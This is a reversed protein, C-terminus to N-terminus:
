RQGMCVVHGSKDTMCQQSTAIPTPAAEPISVTPVAAVPPSLVPQAVSPAPADPEPTWEYKVMHSCADRAASGVSTAKGAFVMDGSHNFVAVKNVKMAASIALGYIGGFAFMSSRKGGERRLVLVYDAARPNNTVVVTPCSKFIEAQIETTRPDAGAQTHSVAASSGGGQVSWGNRNGGGSFGESSKAIGTHEFIPDDTILVRVKDQSYVPLVAALALVVLLIAKKM